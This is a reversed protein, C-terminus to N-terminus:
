SKAKRQKRGPAKKKSILRGSKGRLSAPAPQQAEGAGLSASQASAFLSPGTVPEQRARAPPSFARTLLAQQPLASASSSPASAQECPPFDIPLASSLPPPCPTHSPSRRASALPQEPGVAQAAEARQADRHAARAAALRRRQRLDRQAQYRRGPNPTFSPRADAARARSGFM